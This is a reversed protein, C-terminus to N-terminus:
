MISDSQRLLIPVDFAVPLWHEQPYMALPPCSKVCAMCGTCAPLNLILEVKGTPLINRDIAQTPCVNSCVPCDICTDNVLPAPWYLAQQPAAGAKASLARWKWEAPVREEPISWNVFPLTVFPLPQDPITRAVQEKGAKFLSKFAGRRSMVVTRGMDDPSAARITLAIPQPRLKQAQEAVQKLREPVDASGVPCTQCAGYILTLPTAWADAAAIAAVTVRGLCPLNPGGAGSQACTLTAPPTDKQQHLSNLPGQLDFELAGTPCAQVCLGCGTCAEPVIQVSNGLEGVIVAHHPCAAACADCGDVAQRELLCRPATYRPVHQSDEGLQELIGKLM